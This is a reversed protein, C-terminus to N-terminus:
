KQGFSSPQALHNLRKLCWCVCVLAEDNATLRAVVLDSRFSHSKIVFKIMFARNL